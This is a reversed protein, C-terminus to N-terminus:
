VHRRYTSIINRRSMLVVAKRSPFNSFFALIIVRASYPRYAGLFYSQAQIKASERLQPLILSGRSILKKLRGYVKLM